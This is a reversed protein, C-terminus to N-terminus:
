GVLWLHRKSGQPQSIGYCMSLTDLDLTASDLADYSWIMSLMYPFSYRV